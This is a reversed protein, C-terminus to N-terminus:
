WNMTLDIVMEVADLRAAYHSLRECFTWRNMLRRSLSFVSYFCPIMWRHDVIHVQEVVLFFDALVRVAILVVIVKMTVMVGVPLVQRGKLM